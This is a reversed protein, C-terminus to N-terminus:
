ENMTDYLKRWESLLEEGYWLDTSGTLEKELAQRYLEERWETSPKAIMTAGSTIPTMSDTYEYRLIMEGLEDDEHTVKWM